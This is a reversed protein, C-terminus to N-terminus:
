AHGIAGPESAEVVATLEAPTMSLIKLVASEALMGITQDRWRAVLAARAIEILARRVGALEYWLMMPRFCDDCILVCDAEDFGPWNAEREAAAEEDSWGKENTEGCRACTYTEDM